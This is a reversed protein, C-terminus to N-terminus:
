GSTFARTVAGEADARHRALDAALALQGAARVRNHASRSPFRQRDWGFYRDELADRCFRAALEVMITQAGIVLAEREENSLQDRTAAAYGAMAGEFLELDFQAASADEGRPNCWSRFADGLELPLPMRAITDLDILAVGEGGDDFLLNSIKPDGHVIREPVAPLPSLAEAAELIAEGLLRIDEFDAHDTYTALAERLGRLHQPTDHVGLRQHHLPEDFDALGRHFKGLLLGAQRASETDTLHNHCQGDIWTMLRWVGDPAEADLTGARTLILRPTTLGKSALHSTVADIDAHVERGFIPALRQLSFRGKPADVRYTVNILGTTIPTLCGGEAEAWSSLIAAATDTM